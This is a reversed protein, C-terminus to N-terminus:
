ATHGGPALFPRLVPRDSARFRSATNVAPVRGTRDGRPGEVADEPSGPRNGQGAPVRSIRRTNAINDLPNADLVLFDANKVPAVTGRQDLGLFRASDRTAAM